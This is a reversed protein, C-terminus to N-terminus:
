PGLMTVTTTTTAMVFYCASTTTARMTTRTRRRTCPSLLTCPAATGETVAGVGTETWTLVGTTIATSGLIPKDYSVSTPKVISPPSLLSRPLPRPPPGRLAPPTNPPAPPPTKTAMSTSATSPRPTSPNPCSLCSLINSMGPCSMVLCYMVHCILFLALCPLSYM